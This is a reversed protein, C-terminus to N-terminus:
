FKGIYLQDIIIDEFAGDCMANSDTIKHTLLDYIFETISYNPYEQRIPMRIYYTVISHEIGNDKFFLYGGVSTRGWPFLEEKIIESAMSYISSVSYDLYKDNLTEKYEDIALFFNELSSEGIPLYLVIENSIGVYGYYDIFNKYDNPLEKGLEQEVKDWDIKINPYPIEPPPLINLLKQIAM